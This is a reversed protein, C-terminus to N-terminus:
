LTTKVLSEESTFDAIKYCPLIDGARFAYLEDRVVVTKTNDFDLTRYSYTFKQAEGKKLLYISHVHTNGSYFTFAFM